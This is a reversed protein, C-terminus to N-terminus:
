NPVGAELSPDPERQDWAGTGCFASDSWEPGHSLSATQIGRRIQTQSSGANGSQQNIKITRKEHDHRKNELCCQQGDFCSWRLYAGRDSAKDILGAYCANVLTQSPKTLRDRACQRCAEQLDEATISEKREAEPAEFRYYYAVTATFENNSSPNKSAVFTKIDTTRGKHFSIADGMVPAAPYKASSDTLAAPPAVAKLGLKERAWRLVREQTDVDFKSLTDIVTRVADLDDLKDTMLRDDGYSEIQSNLM